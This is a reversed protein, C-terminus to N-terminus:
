GRRRMEPRLVWHGGEQTVWVGAVNGSEGRELRDLLAAVASGRPTGGLAVIARELLKLRVLRPGQPRYRLGRPVLAVDELWRQELWEALAEEAEALHGASLALAEANILPNAALLRRMAVRDFREDTNGPDRAPTVGADACVAELEANRWGLLPRIVLAAGDGEMVTRPRIGALGALGSGRNLRMLLTEAQDDAHHATAIASLGEIGAWASLADYRATRAEAQLNGPAVQVSLVMHPVGREACLRAVMGAEAGSEPRLGHDVTAAAIRGPLADAALLLLALSDPGGSVALGLRASGDHGEPWVRRLDHGFRQVLNPPITM